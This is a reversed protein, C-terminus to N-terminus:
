RVRLISIRKLVLLEEIEMDQYEQLRDLTRLISKIRLMLSSIISRMFLILYDGLIEIRRM